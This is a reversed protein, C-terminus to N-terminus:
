TKSFIRHLAKVRSRFTRLAPTWWQLKNNKRPRKLRLKNRCVEQITRTSQELARNLEATTSAQAIIDPLHHVASKIAECFESRDMHKSRFRSPAKYTPTATTSYTIFRHDSASYDVHVIWDLITPVLDQSSLTLDPSSEMGPM